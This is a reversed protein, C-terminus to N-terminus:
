VEWGISCFACKLEKAQKKKLLTLFELSFEDDKVIYFQIHIHAKAKKLETFLDSFLEPGSSFLQITSERIPYTQHELHHLHRKRGMFFDIFLWGVLLLLIVIITSLIEM